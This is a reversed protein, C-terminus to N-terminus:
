NSANCIITNGIIETATNNM